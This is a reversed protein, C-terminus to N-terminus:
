VTSANFMREFREREQSSPNPPEEMPNAPPQPNSPAQNGNLPFM